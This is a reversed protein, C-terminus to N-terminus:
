IFEVLMRLQLNAKTTVHEGQHIANRARKRQLFHQMIVNKMLFFNDLTTRTVIQRLGLRAGM